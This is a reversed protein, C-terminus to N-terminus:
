LNEHQDAGHRIGCARRRACPYVIMPLVFTFRAPSILRSCEKAIRELAESLATWRITRRIDQHRTMSKGDIKMTSGKKLAEVLKAEM